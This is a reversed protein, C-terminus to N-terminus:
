PRIEEPRRPLPAQILFNALFGKRKEENSLVAYFANHQDAFQFICCVIKESRSSIPRRFKKKTIKKETIAPGKGGVGTKMIAPSKAAEEMPFYFNITHM